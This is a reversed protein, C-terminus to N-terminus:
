KESLNRIQTDTAGIKDELEDLAETLAELNEQSLHSFQRKISARSPLIKIQDNQIANELDERLKDLDVNELWFQGQQNSVM